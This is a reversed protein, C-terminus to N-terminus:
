SAVVADGFDDEGGALGRLAKIRPKAVLRIINDEGFDGDRM